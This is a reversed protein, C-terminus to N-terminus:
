DLGANSGANEQEQPRAALVDEASEVFQISGNGSEFRLAPECHGMVVMDEHLDFLFLGVGRSGGDACITVVGEVAVGDLEAGHYEGLNVVEIVAGNEMRLIGACKLANYYQTTEAHLYAGEQLILDNKFVRVASQSGVASLRAGPEQTLAKAIVGSGKSATLKLDSQPLISVSGQAQIGNTLAEIRLGEGGIEADGLCGIGDAGAILTLDNLTIRCGDDLRIVCDGGSTISNGNGHLILPGRSKPVRLMEGDLDLSCGLSAEATEGAEFFYILDTITFIGETPDSFDIHYDEAAENPAACAYFGATLLALACVAWRKLMSKKSEDTMIRM